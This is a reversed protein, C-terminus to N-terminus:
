TAVHDRHPTRAGTRAQRVDCSRPVLILPFQDVHSVDEFLAVLLVETVRVVLVSDKVNSRAVAHELM